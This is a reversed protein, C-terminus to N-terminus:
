SLRSNYEEPYGIFLGGTGPAAESYYSLPREMHAGVFKFNPDNLYPGDDSWSINQTDPYWPEMAKVKKTDRNFGHLVNMHGFGGPAKFGIVLPWYGMYDSLTSPNIVATHMRFTDYHKRVGARFGPINITGDRNWVGAFKMLLDFYDGYPRAPLVDLWWDLCAAWCGTADNGQGVAPEQGFGHFDVVVEIPKLVQVSPALFGTGEKTGDITFRAPRSTDIALEIALPRARLRYLIKSENSASIQVADEEQQTAYQVGILVYDGWNVTLRHESPNYIGKTEKPQYFRPM